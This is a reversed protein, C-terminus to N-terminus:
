AFLDLSAGMMEFSSKIGQIGLNQQIKLNNASISENALDADQITSLSSKLNMTSANITEIQRDIARIESGTTLNQSLVSTFAQSTKAIADELSASDGNVKLENLNFDSLGGLGSKNLMSDLEISLQDIDGQIADKEAQSITSGKAQTALSGLEEIISEASSIRSSTTNSQNREREMLKSNVDNLAIDKSLTKAAYYGSPDDSAKNIKLGTGIKNMTSLLNRNVSDLQNIASLALGPIQGTM